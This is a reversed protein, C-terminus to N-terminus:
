GGAGRAMRRELGDLYANMTGEYGIIFRSVFRFFPNYVEGDETIGIRTGGGAAELEYTWTGGFPLGEDAIRAVMRRGPELETVQLTMSGTSAHERWVPLGDVPELREVRKLGPRWSPFSEVDTMVAWVAEPPGRVVRDTTATHAVPLLAGVAVALAILVAVVGLAGLAWPMWGSM